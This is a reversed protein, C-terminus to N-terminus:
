AGTTTDPKWAEFVRLAFLALLAVPYVLSWVFGYNFVVWAPVCLLCAALFRTVGWRETLMSPVLLLFYGPWTLPSALLAALIALEATARHSRLRPAYFAAIALVSISAAPGAFGLGLRTLLGPLSANTPTALWYIGSAARYWSQYIAPGYLVIPLLTIVAAGSLAAAGAPFRRQILLLAPWTLFPPKLAAVIGILIGGRLPASAVSRWALAALLALPAYVQNLTLTCWFGVAALAWALKVSAIRRERVIVILMAGYTVVTVVFLLIRATPPDLRAWAQLIPLWSPVNVSVATSGLVRHHDLWSGLTAVDYPDLGHNVAEGAALFPALDYVVNHAPYFTAAELLALLIFTVRTIRPGLHGAKEILRTSYDSITGAPKRLQFQNGQHDGAHSSDAPTISHTKISEAGKM